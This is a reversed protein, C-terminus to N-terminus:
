KSLGEWISTCSYCLRVEQMRTQSSNSMEYLDNLSITSGVKTNIGQLLTLQEDLRSEIDSTTYM